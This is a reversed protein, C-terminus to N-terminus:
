GRAAKARLKGGIGIEGRCPGVDDDIRRRSSDIGREDLEFGDRAVLANGNPHRAGHRCTQILDAAECPRCLGM